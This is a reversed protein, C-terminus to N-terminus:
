MDADMCRAIISDYADANRKNRRGTDSTAKAVFTAQRYTLPAVSLQEALSTYFEGGLSRLLAIIDGVRDQRAALAAARADAEARRKADRESDRAAREALQASTMRYRVADASVGVRLACETGIFRETGSADRIVVHHRIGNGCHSCTGAGAPLDAMAAQYAAPNHEAIDASPLSFFGVVSAAALDSTRSANM